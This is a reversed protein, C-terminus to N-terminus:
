PIRYRRKLDAAADDVHRGRRELEQALTPVDELSGVDSGIGRRLRELLGIADQMLTLTAGHHERCSDPVTLNRLRELATRNTAILRDFGSADGRASQEVLAQALAQPDNWYRAQAEIAEVESLYRAVGERAPDAAEAVAPSPSSAGTSSVAPATPPRPGDTASAIEATAPPPAQSAAPGAPVTSTEQRAIAASAAPAPLGARASDRGARYALVMLAAVLLAVLGIGAAILGRRPIEVVDRRPSPPQPM